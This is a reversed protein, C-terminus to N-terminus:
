RPFLDTSLYRDGLDPIITVIRRGKGKDM